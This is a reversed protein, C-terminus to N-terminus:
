VKLTAEKQVMEKDALRNEMSRKTYHTHLLEHAKHGNPTGLYDAYLKTIYPNEHSKRLTKKFIHCFDPSGPPARKSTGPPLSLAYALQLHVRRGLEFRRVGEIVLFDGVIGNREYFRKRM